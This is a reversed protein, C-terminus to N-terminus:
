SRGKSLGLAAAIALQRPSLGNWALGFGFPNAKVRTKTETVLVLPKISSGSKLGSDSITYTDTTITNEMMYGYQMVLGDTAADSLNSIVAGFSSFWDIAWTWPALNWITEPTLSLGLLKKAKLAERALVSRSDHGIPLTYTFAGSFWQRRVTERTRIVIGTPVGSRYLNVNNPNTVCWVPSGWVTTTTNKEEPFNYRRRVVRGADREYQSIVADARHIADLFKKVDSIIPKFGFEVNLYESGLGKAKKTRNKWLNVGVMSPLGDKALEGLFVSLDAVSNTPKCIEVARAGRVNLAGETSAINPPFTLTAPDLPLGPGEYLYTVIGSVPHVSSGSVSLWSAKSAVWSKTTSFPGGIDSSDGKARSHFPHGESVTTQKGTKKFADGNSKLVSITSGKNATIM